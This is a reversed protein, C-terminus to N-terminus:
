KNLRHDHLEYILIFCNNKNIQAVIKGNWENSGIEVIKINKGGMYYAAYNDEFETLNFNCNLNMNKDNLDDFNFKWLSNGNFESEILDLNNIEAMKKSYKKLGLKSIFDFLLYQNAFSLCIITFKPYTYSENLLFSDCTSNLISYNINTPLFNELKCNSKEMSYNCGSLFIFFIPINCYFIKKIRYITM